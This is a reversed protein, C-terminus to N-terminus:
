GAIVSANQAVYKVTEKVVTNTAGSGGYMKLLMIAITVSGIVAVIILIAQAYNVKGLGGIRQQVTMEIKSSIAHPILTNLLSKLHSFDVNERLRDFSSLREQSGDPATFVIDKNDMSGEMLAYRIESLQKEDKLVSNLTDTVKFSELSANAAIAPNFALFVNKTKKDIYAGKENIIFSGYDKDSLINGEPELVRWDLRKHDTFILSIPKGSIMAKFEMIAHTKKSLYILFIFMLIFLLLFTFTGGIWVYDGKKFFMGLLLGLTSFGFLGTTIKWLFDFDRKPKIVKLPKNKEKDKLIKEKEFNENQVRIREQILFQNYKELDEQKKLQDDIINNNNYNEEM